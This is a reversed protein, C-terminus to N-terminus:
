AATELQFMENLHQTALAPLNVGALSHARTFPEIEPWHNVLAAITTVSGLATSASRQAANVRDVLDEAEAHLTEYKKTLPHDPEYRKCCGSRNRSQFRRSEPGKHSSVLVYVKGSINGRGDFQLRTYGTGGGFQVGICLGTPLWGEPLAEMQDRVKRPYVDEYVRSAFAEQRKIFDEVEERFRHILLDMCISERISATLRISAM